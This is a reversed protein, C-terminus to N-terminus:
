IYQTYNDSTLAVEKWDSRPIDRLRVFINGYKCSEVTPVKYFVYFGSELLESVTHRLVDRPACAYAFEGNVGPKNVYHIDEYENAELRISAKPKWRKDWKLFEELVPALEAEFANIENYLHDRSFNSPFTSM